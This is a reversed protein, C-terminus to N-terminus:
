RLVAVLTISAMIRGATIAVAFLGCSQNKRDNCYPGSNEPRKKNFITPSFKLYHKNKIVTNIDLILTSHFNIKRGAEKEQQTSRGCM